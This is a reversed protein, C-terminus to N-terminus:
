HNSHNRFAAIFENTNKYGLRSLLSKRHTDVTYKSIFLTEAIEKSSKGQFLLQAVQKERNTLSTNEFSLISNSRNKFREITLRFEIIDVPKMLYDFASKKIASIAYHSYGSVFVFDSSNGSNRVEGIIDFGNKVPMEIDLFILDPKIDIIMKIATDADQEYGSFSLEEFKEIIEKMRLCAEKEDDVVFCSIGPM